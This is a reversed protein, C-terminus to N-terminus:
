KPKVPKPVIIQVTFALITRFFTTAKQVINGHIQGFHRLAALGNDCISTPQLPVVDTTILSEHRSKRLLIARSIASSLCEKLPPVNLDLTYGTPPLGCPYGVRPPDQLSQFTQQWNRSRDLIEDALLFNHRSLVTTSSQFIPPCVSIM